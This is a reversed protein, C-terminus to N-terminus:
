MSKRGELRGDHFTKMSVEGCGHAGVSLTMRASLNVGCSRSIKSFVIRGKTSDPCAKVTLRLAYKVATFTGYAIEFDGTSEGVGKSRCADRRTLQKLAIEERLFNQVAKLARQRASDRRGDTRVTHGIDRPLAKVLNFSLM